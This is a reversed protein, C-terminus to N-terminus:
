RDPFEYETDVATRMAEVVKESKNKAYKYLYARRERGLDQLEIDELDRPQFKIWGKQGMWKNLTPGLAAEKARADYAFLARFIMAKSVLESKGTCHAITELAVFDFVPDPRRKIGSGVPQPTFRSTKLGKSEHRVHVSPESRLRSAPTPPVVVGLQQLQRNLTQFQIRLSEADEQVLQTGGTEVSSLVVPRLAQIAQDLACSAKKAQAGPEM